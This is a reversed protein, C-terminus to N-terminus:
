VSLFNIFQEVTKPREAVSYKLVANVFINMEENHVDYNKQPQM